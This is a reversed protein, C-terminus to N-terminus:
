NKVDLKIIVPDYAKASQIRRELEEICKEPESIDLGFTVEPGYEWWRIKILREIIEDSFRKKILRAPVGGVVSYPAVDKTVVCGASLVAGDGIKVGNLVTVGYGIWVDNGIVPLPKKWSELNKLKM